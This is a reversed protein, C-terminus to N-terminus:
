ERDLELDRLHKATACTYSVSKLDAADALEAMGGRQAPLSKSSKARHPPAGILRIDAGL